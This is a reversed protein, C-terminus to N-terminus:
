LTGKLVYVLMFSCPKKVHPSSLYSPTVHFITFQFQFYPMHKLSLTHKFNLISVGLSQNYDKFLFQPM